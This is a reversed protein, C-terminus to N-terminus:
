SSWLLRNRCEWNEKRKNSIMLRTLSHSTGGNRGVSTARMRWTSSNLSNIFNQQSSFGSARGSKWSILFVMCLINIFLPMYSFVIGINWQESNDQYWFYIGLWTCSHISVLLCKESSSMCVEWSRTLQLRSITSQEDTSRHHHNYVRSLAILDQNSQMLFRYNWYQRSLAYLASVSTKM